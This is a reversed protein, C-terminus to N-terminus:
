ALTPVRQLGAPCRSPLKSVKFPIERLLAAIEDMGDNSDVAYLLIEFEGPCATRLWLRTSNTTTHGVIAAVKLRRNPWPRDAKYVFSHDM